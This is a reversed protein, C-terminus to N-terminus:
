PLADENKRKKRSGKKNATVSGDRLRLDFTLGSKRYYSVSAGNHWKKAPEYGLKKLEASIRVLTSRSVRLGTIGIRRAVEITRIDSGDHHALFREVKVTIDCEDRSMSGDDKDVLRRLYESFTIGIRDARSQVDAIQKATLAISRHVMQSM